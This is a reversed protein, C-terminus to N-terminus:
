SGVTAMYGLRCNQRSIVLGHASKYKCVSKEDKLRYKEGDFSWFSKREDINNCKSNLNVHVIYYLDEELFKKEELKSRKKGM